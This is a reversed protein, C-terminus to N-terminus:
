PLLPISSVLLAMKRPQTCKWRFSCSTTTRAKPAEMRKPSHQAETTATPQETVVPPAPPAEITGGWGVLPTGLLVQAERIAPVPTVSNTWEQMRQDQIRRLSEHAVAESSIAAVTRAEAQAVRVQHMRVTVEAQEARSIQERLLKAQDDFLKDLSILYAVIHYLLDEQHRRRELNRMRAQWVPTRIAPPFYRMPTPVLHEEYIRFLYCLAKRLALPYTDRHRFGTAIVRWPEINTHRNSRAISLIVRCRLTGLQEYERSYYRPREIICLRELYNILLRAFGLEEQCM